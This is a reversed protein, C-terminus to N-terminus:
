GSRGRSEESSPTRFLRAPRGLPSEGSRGIATRSVPGPARTSSTHAERHGVAVAVLRWTATGVCRPDSRDPHPGGPSRPAGGSRTARARARTRPTMVDDARRDGFAISRQLLTATDPALTGQQASRAALSTLEEPSRASALEEQPEIGLRHLVANASANFLSIVPRFVRTFGRMFGQVLKATGLPLAIALNKPVLEGLVMTFATALILGIAVSIGSVAGSPVGLDELPGDILKAIAPEAMFGILLNTLTIGLQAGSLQTSLNHLADLVGRAGADGEEVAREVTSRDVTVFSFEAAVFAGCALVLGLSVILLLVETM